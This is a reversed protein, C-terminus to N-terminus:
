MPEWQKTKDNFKVWGKTNIPVGKPEKSYKGIEMYYQKRMEVKERQHEVSDLVDKRGYVYLTIFLSFLVVFFIITGAM